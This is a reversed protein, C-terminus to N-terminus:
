SKPWHAALAANAATIAAGKTYLPSTMGSSIWSEANALTVPGTPTPAPAPPPVVVNGGMKNFDAILQDLDFGTPAKQTAKSLISPTLLTYCEGGDKAAAYTSLAAKTLTGTMGWTAIVPNGQADYEGSPVCHGNNPDSKGAVDWTFGSENPENQVWKDPLGMGLFINEFLWIATVCEVDNTPDVALSGTLHVGDPLGHQQAYALADQINTGQDTSPDKPNYGTIASYLQVVTQETAHYPAGANATAWGEVHLLASIVCCGLQDNMYVDSIIPKAAPCDYYASYSAPPTPLTTARLYNSLKFRRHVAIPQRRGLKKGSPTNRVPSNM